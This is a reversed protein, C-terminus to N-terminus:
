LPRPKGPTEGNASLGSLAFAHAIAAIAAKIDLDARALANETVDCGGGKLLARLIILLDGAAPNALRAALSTLDNAGFAAEMEALAGLTVRLVKPEGGVTLITDGRTENAM